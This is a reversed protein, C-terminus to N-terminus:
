VGGFYDIEALGVVWLNTGLTVWGKNLNGAQGSKVRHQVM